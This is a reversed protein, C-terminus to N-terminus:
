PRDPYRREAEDTAETPQPSVSEEGSVVGEEHVAEDAAADPQAPTAESTEAIVDVDEDEDAEVDIVEADDEPKVVGGVARRAVRVQIGEAIEVILDDEEDIDRVIGYLGGVTLVEDGPEISSLLRQQQQAKQRQPRILLVWLLIFM